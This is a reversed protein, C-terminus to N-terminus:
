CKELLGPDASIHAKHEGWQPRSLEYQDGIKEIEIDKAAM